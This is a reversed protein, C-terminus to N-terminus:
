NYPLTTEIFVIERLTSVSKADGCWTNLHVKLWFFVTYSPRALNSLGLKLGGSCFFCTAQQSQNQQLKLFFLYIFKLEKQFKNNM